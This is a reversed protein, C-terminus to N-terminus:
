LQLIADILKLNDEKAKVVLIPIDLDGEVLKAAVSGLLVSSLATRGKSGLIVLDFHHAQAYDNILKDPKGHHDLLYEIKFEPVTDEAAIFEEFDEKAHQLMIENFEDFTKGTAHFGTPVEYTHLCTLTANVIQSIKVAKQFALHSANSFDTPLLISKPEIKSNATVFLASSHVINVINRSTVGKGIHYQKKGLVILDIEKIQAWRIIEHTPDGELVDFHFDYKINSFVKEISKRMEEEVREDVPIILDPYNKDIASPVELSRIVTVFYINDTNEFSAYEAAARILTDDMDSQDLCVLLRKFDYM